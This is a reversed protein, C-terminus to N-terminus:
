HFLYPSPFFQVRIANAFDDATKGKDFMAKQSLPKPAAEAVM